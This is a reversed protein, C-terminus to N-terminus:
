GARFLGRPAAGRARQAGRSLFPLNAHTAVAASRDVGLINRARIEFFWLAMPGDQRLKSGRIGPVWTHLEEILTDVGRSSKPDPLSILNDGNHVERGAGENIRRTSGFLGAMSAVGYDPDLKNKGTYHGTMRVGRSALYENIAPDHILFGSFNQEEIVWENVGYEETVAKIHDRFYQAPPAAKVWCNEIWRKKTTRDVKGVVTFTEGAMAPDMSAITYMGEGGARPHGWAGATLPGAKRRADVSGHVCTPNFVSEASVDQQMYVLAWKQASTQARVDDLRPGDWAQYMGDPGPQENGDKDLAESARPWLTIWDKPDDAYSLVAPQKLHSWPSEGSIYRQPNMLESYIDQVGVRTGVVMLLGGFLRSAADQTLWEIQKEFEHANKVDAVDDCIILDARAGYIQGGIGVAEVTPHQDSDEGGRVYIQTATWPLEEDRFPGYAAQLRAWRPDELRMKVGRLFKMSQKQTKSVLITRVNPNMCIRYVVYEISLVTSKAHFPPTNIILRNQARGRRYRGPLAEDVEGTEIAQIWARHHPYTVQDLYETRFEEFSIDKRGVKGDPREGAARAAALKARADDVEAAFNKDDRRWMEYTKPQRGVAAM